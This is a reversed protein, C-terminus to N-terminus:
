AIWKGVTSVKPGFKSPHEAVVRGTIWDLIMLIIVAGAFMSGFILVVFVRPGLAAKQGAMPMMRALVMFLPVLYAFLFGVILMGLLLTRARNVGEGIWIRMGSRYAAFLGWATLAASVFFSGVWLLAAFALAAPPGNTGEAPLFLFATAVLVGFAVAGVMWAGWACTFRACVSGAAKDPLSRTVQRATRLDGGAVGFCLLIVGLPPLLLWALAIFGTAVFWRAFHYVGLRARAPAPATPAFLEWVPDGALRDDMESM